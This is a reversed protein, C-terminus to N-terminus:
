RREHGFHLIVPSGQNHIIIEKRPEEIDVPAQETSNPKQESVTKNEIRIEPIWLPKSPQSDPKQDPEPWGVQKLLNFCVTSIHDSLKETALARRDKQTATFGMSLENSQVPHSIAQLRCTIPLVDIKQFDPARPDSNGASFSFGTPTNGHEVNGVTATLTHSFSQGATNGVPYNWASLNNSVQQKIDAPLVSAQDASIQLDIRGINKFDFVQQKKILDPACGALGLLAMMGFVQKNM